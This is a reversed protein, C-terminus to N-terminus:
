REKEKNNHYDKLCMLLLQYIMKSMDPYGLDYRMKHFDEFCELTCNCQLKYHKKSKNDSDHELYNRRLMSLGGTKLLFNM